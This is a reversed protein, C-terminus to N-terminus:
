VTKAPCLEALATAALKEYGIKFGALLEVLAKADDQLRAGVGQAVEASSEAFAKLGDIDAVEAAAKLRSLGLDTYAGLHSLQFAALKELNAVSLQNAQIVPAALAQSKATVDALSPFTFDTM